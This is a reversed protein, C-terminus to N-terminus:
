FYDTLDQIEQRYQHDNVASQSPLESKEGDEDELGNEM